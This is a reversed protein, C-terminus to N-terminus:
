KTDLYVQYSNALLLNEMTSKQGILIWQKGVNGLRNIARHGHTLTVKFGTWDIFKEITLSVYVYKSATVHDNVYVSASDNM